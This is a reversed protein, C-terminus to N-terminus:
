IRVCSIDHRVVCIGENDNGDSLVLSTHPSSAQVLVGLWFLDSCRFVLTTVVVHTLGAVMQTVFM